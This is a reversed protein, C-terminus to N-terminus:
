GDPTDQMERRERGRLFGLGEDLRRRNGIAFAFIVWIGVSHKLGAIVRPAISSTEPFTDITALAQYYLVVHVFILVNFLRIPKQHITGWYVVWGMCALTILCQLPFIAINHTYSLYPGLFFSLGILVASILWFWVDVKPAWSNMVHEPTSPDNETEKRDISEPVNWHRHARGDRRSFDNTALESLVGVYM